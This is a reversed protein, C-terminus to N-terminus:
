EACHAAYFALFCAKWLLRLLLLRSSSSTQQQYTDFSRAGFSRAGVPAARTKPARDKTRCILRSRSDSDASCSRCAAQAPVPLVQLSGTSTGAPLPPSCHHLTSHRLSTKRIVKWNGRTQLKSCYTISTIDPAADSTTIESQQLVCEYVQGKSRPSTM